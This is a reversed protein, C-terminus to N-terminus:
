EEFLTSEQLFVYMKKHSELPFIECYLLLFVGPRGGLEAPIFPRSPSRTKQFKFNLLSKKNGMPSM